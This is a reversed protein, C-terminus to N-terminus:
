RNSKERDRTICACQKVPIKQSRGEVPFEGDAPIWEEWPLAKTGEFLEDFTTAPFEGMKVLVRDSSRLWLNCRCIDIYDGTFFVGATTSRLM